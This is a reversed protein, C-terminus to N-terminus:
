AARVVVLGIDGFVSTFRQVNEGFYFFAQGQTPAAKKGDPSVFAIRGRTFCIAQCSNAVSHFWATDTYNHTLVIASDINGLGWETCVKAAFHSIAPQSYPPNLWVKGHWDKSLGDDEETFIHLAQVTENAQESSAPDLDIGGMADRAAIIYTEPTYWENVGTGMARHNNLISSTTAGPQTVGEEFEDEPVDALRQWRSSQDRSIGYDSLTARYTDDQAVCLEQRPRGAAQTALVGAAQQERILEGTRREARLRIERCRDEAERNKAQRAYEQMAMAKDRISKVEDIRHAEAIAHCMADYKVLETM